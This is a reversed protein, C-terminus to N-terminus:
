EVVRAFEVCSWTGLMDPAEHAFASAPALVAAVTFLVAIRRM